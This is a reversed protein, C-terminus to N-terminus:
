QLSEEESIARRTTNYGPSSCKPQVLKGPRQENAKPECRVIFITLDLEGAAALRGHIM